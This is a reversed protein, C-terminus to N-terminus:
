VAFHLVKRLVALRPDPEPSEIGGGTATIGGCEFRKGDLLAHFRWTNGPWGPADAWTSVGAVELLGGLRDLCPYSLPRDVTWSVGTALSRRHTRMVGIAPPRPCDTVPLLDAPKEADIFEYRFEEEESRGELVCTVKGAPVIHLWYDHRAAPEKTPKDRYNDESSWVDNAQASWFPPPTFTEGYPRLLLCRLLTFKRSKAWYIGCCDYVGCGVITDVRIRDFVPGHCSFSGSFGATKLGWQLGPKRTFGEANAEDGPLCAKPVFSPKIVYPRGDELEGEVLDWEAEDWWEIQQTTVAQSWTGIGIAALEASARIASAGALRVRGRKGGQRHARGYRFDCRAPAVLARLPELSLPRLLDLLLELQHLTGHEYKPRMFHVGHRMEITLNGDALPISEAKHGGEFYPKAEWAASAAVRQWFAAEDFGRISRHRLATPRGDASVHWYTDGKERMSVEMRVFDIRVGPGEPAAEIHVYRDSESPNIAVRLSDLSLPYLLDIVQRLREAEHIRRERGAHSLTLLDAGETDRRRRCDCCHCRQEAPWDWAGAAALREWFGNADYGTISGPIAIKVRDASTAHRFEMRDFDIDYADGQPFDKTGMRISIQSPTRVCYECDALGCSDALLALPELIGRLLAIKEPQDDLYIYRERGGHFIMLVCANSLAGRIALYASFTGEPWTSWEWVGAKELRAWFEEADEDGFSNWMYHFPDAHKRSFNIEVRHWPIDAKRNLSLLFYSRPPFNSM